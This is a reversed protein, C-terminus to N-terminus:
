TSAAAAGAHDALHDAWEALDALLPSAATAAERDGVIIVRSRASTLAVNLRADDAVLDVLERRTEPGIVLSLIIVDREDGQFGDPTDVTISRGFRELLLDRLADRQAALPTVVGISRVPQDRLDLTSLGPDGPRVRAPRGAAGHTSLPATLM